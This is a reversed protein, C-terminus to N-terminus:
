IASGRGDRRFRGPLLVPMGSVKREELQNLDGQTERGGRGVRQVDDPDGSQEARKAMAHYNSYAEEEKAIARNLIEEWTMEM